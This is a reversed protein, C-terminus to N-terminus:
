QDPLEQRPKRYVAAEPDDVGLELAIQYNTVELEEPSGGDFVEQVGERFQQEAVERLHPLIGSTPRLMPLIVDQLRGVTRWRDQLLQQVDVDGGAAGALVTVADVIDRNVEIINGERCATGFADADPRRKLDKYRPKLNDVHSFFAIAFIMIALYTWGGSGTVTFYAIAGATALVYFVTEAMRREPHEPVKPHSRALRQFGASDSLAIYYKKDKGKGDANAKSVEGSAM